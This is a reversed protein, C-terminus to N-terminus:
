DEHVDLITIFIAEPMKVDLPVYFNGSMNIGAFSADKKGDKPLFVAVPRNKEDKIGISQALKRASKWLEEFTMQGEADAVAVKDPFRAVTHELYEIVSKQM